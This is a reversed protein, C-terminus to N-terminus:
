TQAHKEGLAPNFKPISITFTSGTERTSQAKIDGGHAQMIGKCIALGLGTGGERRQPGLDTRQLRDFIHALDPESIGIGNDTVAIYVFLEDSYASIEIRPERDNYRIANTLLNALVQELRLRDGLILPLESSVKNEITAGNQLHKPLHRLTNEVVTLARAPEKNLGITGAALKSLDLWDEVLDRLRDTDELIGELLEQKFSEDWQADQRLLTEVSGKISTIPTKFEHSVLSILDGKLKDIEWIKTVDRFLYGRGLLLGDGTRVPFVSVALLRERGSATRIKMQYIGDKAKISDITDVSDSQRVQALLQFLDEQAQGRLTDPSIEFLKGMRQNAYIVIGKTDTWTIGDYISDLVAKLVAHKEQNTKLLIENQLIIGASHALTQIFQQDTEDLNADDLYLYGFILENSRVPLMSPATGFDAIWPQEYLAQSSAAATRRLPRTFFALKAKVNAKECFEQLCGEIVLAAEHPPLIPTILRNLIALEMNHRVLSKTREAVRQELEANAQALSQNATQNTTIHLLKAGSIGLALVAIAIAALSLKSQMLSYLLLSLGGACSLIILIFYTKLSLPKM